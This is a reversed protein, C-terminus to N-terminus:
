MGTGKQPHAKIEAEGADGGEKQQHTHSCGTAFLGSTRAKKFM